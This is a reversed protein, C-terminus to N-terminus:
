PGLVPDQQERDIIIIKEKEQVIDLWNVINGSILVKYVYGVENGKVKSYHSAEKKSSTLYLGYGLLNYDVHENRDYFILSDRKSGHYGVSNNDSGEFFIYM